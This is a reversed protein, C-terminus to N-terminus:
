KQEELHSEFNNVDYAQIFAEVLTDPKMDEKATLLHISAFDDDIKSVFHDFFSQNVFSGM